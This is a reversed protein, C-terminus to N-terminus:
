FTPCKNIVSPKKNKKTIVNILGGMSDSGYLTSMGSRIVEIREIDDINIISLDINGAFEGSIRNGDIMFVVFRNDLGQVKLKDDTGHPDHIRQVNPMIFEIIDTASNYPSEYIEEGTIIHTIVPTDKIHSKYGLATVVIQNANLLEKELYIKINTLTSIEVKKSVYGIHSVILFYDNEEKSLKPFTIQFYGSADTVSGISIKEIYVEVNSIPIGNSDYVYGNLATNGFSISVLINLM